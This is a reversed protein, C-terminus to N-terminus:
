ELKELHQRRQEMRDRKTRRDYHKDIIEPTANVRGSVIDTPIDQRLQHTISGRRIPHASVSSPCRSASTRNIAECEALERGHPCNGWNCPRTSAYFDGRINSISVRGHSSSLFPKRGFEDTVDFHNVELYDHLVQGIELTISIDREGDIGNKLPTDSEPRHRLEICLDEFDVDDVDIAHMAGIRMGTHWALLVEVHKRSAYHYTDLWELIAEAHDPELKIDRAEEGRKLRPLIIKSALNSDVADVTACFQLFRRLTSLQGQMTVPKLGDEERRHVRFFHLDRGGLDNMNTIENDQCWEVFKQLRYDHSQLTQDSVENRRSDLYMKVAERPKLPELDDTM